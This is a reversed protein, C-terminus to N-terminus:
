NRVVVPVALRVGGRTSEISITRSAPPQPGNSLRLSWEGLADVSAQGLLPGTLDSGLHIKVVNATAVTATGEVRWEAKDTRFEVRSTALV